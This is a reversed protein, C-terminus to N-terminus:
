LANRTTTHLFGSWFVSFIRSILGNQFDAMMCLSYGKCFWWKPDFILIGFFMDFDMRCIMELQKTDFFSSWFASFIRSILGNQFDAMMCLSYGKFFWWKPDFILIGFFMHFDMRFIMKLQQTCFVAGFFVLYELFLVMKFIPWWVFAIAKGFDDSQTM